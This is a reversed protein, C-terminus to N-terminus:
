TASKRKARKGAASAVRNRGARKAEYLAADAKNIIEEPDSGSEPFSAVGISVTIGPATLAGGAKRGEVLGRIREASELADELTTEQLLLLFEEGGYRAAYDGARLSSMLTAAVEKLVADGALHGYNDNYDKFHDIDLMLVSYPHNYRLSRATEQHLTEMMHKRNYLGTLGDRISLEHLEENKKRLAHNSKDLEGLVRRLRSAMHNFVDTMTGLEDRSMRPLSVDLDGGAIKAAGATLRDLPRVITMGLIYAALGVGVLVTLVLLLTVNRLQDIQAFAM